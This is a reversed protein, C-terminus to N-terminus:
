TSCGRIRPRVIYLLAHPALRDPKPHTSSFCHLYTVTGARLSEVMRLSRVMTILSRSPDIEPLFQFLSEIGSYEYSAAPCVGVLCPDNTTCHGHSPGDTAQPSVCAADAFSARPLPIRADHFIAEKVLAATSDTSGTFFTQPTFHQGGHLLFM